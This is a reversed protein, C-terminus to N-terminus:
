LYRRTTSDQYLLEEAIKLEEPTDVGLTESEMPVMQCIMGNELFRNLDVSEIRELESEPLSQFVELSRRTFMMIGTQMYARVQSFGKWPSPIPERSFYLARHNKDTVVKPNNVDRFSEESFIRSMINVVDANSDARDRALAIVDPTVIPEDGQIMMIHTYSVQKSDEIIDMAEATRESAREHSSSTMIVKGGLGEIYEAIEDDCTAVYLDSEGMAIRARHWCHGIMPMGAMPKMPKGPFRTSGMRAPIITLIKRTM